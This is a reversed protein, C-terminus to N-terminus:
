SASMLRANKRMLQKKKKELALRLRNAKLKSLGNKELDDVKASSEKIFSLKESVLRMEQSKQNVALTEAGQSTYPSLGLLCFIFINIGTSKNM